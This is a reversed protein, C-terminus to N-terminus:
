PRRAASRLAQPARWQNFNVAVPQSPRTEQGNASLSFRMVLAASADSTTFGTGTPPNGVGTSVSM